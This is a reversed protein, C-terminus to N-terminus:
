WHAGANLNKRRFSKFINMTHAFLCGHYLATFLVCLLTKEVDQTLSHARSTGVLLMYPYLM